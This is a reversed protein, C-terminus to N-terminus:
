IVTALRSRPSSPLTDPQFAPHLVSAPELGRHSLPNKEESDAELASEIVTDACGGGGGRTCDRADVDTHVYFFGWVRCGYRQKSVRFYEVCQYSHTASSKRSRHRVWHLRGSNGVLSLSTSFLSALVFCVFVLATM